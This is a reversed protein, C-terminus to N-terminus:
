AQKSKRRRMITTMLCLGALLMAYSEPEPVPAAVSINDLFVSTDRAKGYKDVSGLGAFTLTHNGAAVSNLTFSYSTWGGDNEDDGSIPPKINKNAQSSLLQGDFSVSIRQFGVANVMRQALSFDITYTGALASFTESIAGGAGQLFAYSSGDLATGGWASNNTAIGSGGTFSWSSSVLGKDAYTYSGAAVNSAEFSGNAIVNATPVAATAAGFAFALSLALVIKKM